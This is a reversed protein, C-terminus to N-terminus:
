ESLSIKFRCQSGGTMVSEQREVSVEHGLASEFGAKLWSSSCNCIAPSSIFDFGVIPCYCQGYKAIVTHEDILEYPNHEGGMKSNLLSIFSEINDSEM